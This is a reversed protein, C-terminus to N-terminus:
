VEFLLVSERGVESHGTEQDGSVPIVDVYFNRTNGTDDVFTFEVLTESEKATQLAARLQAPTSGKYEPTRTLDLVVQYGEKLDLKKRYELTTSIHTPSLTNTGGRDLTIQFAISRFATGTPTTSNPFDFTTIGQSYPGAIYIYKV